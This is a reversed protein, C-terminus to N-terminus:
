ESIRSIKRCRTSSARAVRVVNYTRERSINRAWEGSTTAISRRWYKRIPQPIMMESPKGLQVCARRNRAIGGDGRDCFPEIPDARGIDFGFAASRRRFDPGPRQLWPRLPRSFNGRLCPKRVACMSQRRKRMMSWERVAFRTAKRIHEFSKPMYGKTKWRNEWRSICISPDDDTLRDNALQARIRRGRRPYFSIDQYQRPELLGRRFRPASRHVPPLRRRFRELRGEAKLADGYSLWIKFQDPHDKVLIRTCNSQVRSTESGSWHPLTCIASTRPTEPVRKLLFETQALMESARNMHHLAVRLREPPWFDPALQLCRVFLKEADEYRGLRMGVDAYMRLAHLHTPYEKLYRACCVNPQRRSPRPRARDCGAAIARRSGVGIPRPSTHRQRVRTCEFKESSGTPTASPWEQAYM